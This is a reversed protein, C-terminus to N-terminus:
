KRGNVSGLTSGTWDLRIIIKTNCVCVCVCVCVYHGTGFKQMHLYIIIFHM